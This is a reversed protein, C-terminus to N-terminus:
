LVVQIPVTENVRKTFYRETLAFVSPIQFSQWFSSSFRIAHKFRGREKKSTDKAGRKCEEEKEVKRFNINVEDQCHNPHWFLSM